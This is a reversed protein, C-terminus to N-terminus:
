DCKGSKNKRIRIQRGVLDRRVLIGVGAVRGSEHSWWAVWGPHSMNNSTENIMRM